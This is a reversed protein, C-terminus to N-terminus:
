MLFNLKKEENISIIFNNFNSELEEITFGLSNGLTLFDEVLTYYQDESSCILFDSIDIYLDLFQETLQYNNSRITLNLETFDNDIGISLIISLAKNYSDIIENKKFSTNNDWYYFCKTKSALTGISAQLSLIKKSILIDKNLNKSEDYTSSLQQQLYFLQQFNM